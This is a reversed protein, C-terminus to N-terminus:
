LSEVLCMAHPLLWLETCIAALSMGSTDTCSRLVPHRDLEACVQSLAAAYDELAQKFNGAKRHLYRCVM